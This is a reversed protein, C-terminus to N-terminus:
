ATGKIDFVPHFLEGRSRERYARAKELIVGRDAKVQNILEVSVGEANPASYPLGADRTFAESKKRDTLPLLAADGFSGLILAHLRNTVIVSSTKLEALAEQWSGPMRVAVGFEAGLRTFLEKDEPPSTSLLEIPGVENKLRTLLSRVPAENSGRRGTIILLTRSADRDPLTAIDRAVDQLSFVCDIGWVANIGADELIKKSSIDRVVVPQRINGFYEALSAKSNSQVAGPGISFPYAYIRDNHARIAGITGFMSTGPNTGGWQEGGAVIVAAYDKFRRADQLSKAVLARVYRSQVHPWIRYRSMWKLYFPYRISYTPGVVEFEPAGAARFTALDTQNIPVFPHPFVQMPHGPFRVSVDMLVAHLIAFDGLNGKLNAFLIAIPAKM